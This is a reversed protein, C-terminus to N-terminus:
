YDGEVGRALMPLSHPTFWEECPTVDFTVEGGEGSFALTSLNDFAQKYEAPHQISPENRHTNHLADMIADFGIQNFLEQVTM